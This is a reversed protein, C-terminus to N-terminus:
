RSRWATGYTHGEVQKSEWREQVPEMAPQNDFQAAPMKEIGTPKDPTRRMPYRHPFCSTELPREKEKWHVFHASTTSPLAEQCQIRVDERLLDVCRAFVSTFDTIAQEIMGRLKESCHNDKSSTLILIDFLRQADYM